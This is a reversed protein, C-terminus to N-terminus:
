RGKWDVIEYSEGRWIVIESDAPAPNKPKVPATFTRGLSFTYDIRAIRLHAPLEGTLRGLCEDVAEQGATPSITVHVIENRRGSCSAYVRYESLAQSLSKAWDQRMAPFERTQIAVLRKAVADVTEKEAGSLQYRGEENLLAAWAQFVTAERELAGESGRYKAGSFKDLKTVGAGVMQMFQPKLAQFDPPQKPVSAESAQPAPPAEKQRELFDRYILGLAGLLGVLCVLPILVRLVLARSHRPSSGGAGFPSGAGSGGDCGSLRIKASQAACGLAHRSTPEGCVPCNEVRVGQAV